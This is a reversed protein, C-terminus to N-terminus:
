GEKERHRVSHTPHFLLRSRHGPAHPFLLTGALCSAQGQRAGARAEKESASCAHQGAFTGNRIAALLICQRRAIAALDPRNFTPFPPLLMRQLRGFARRCRCGLASLSFLSSQRARRFALCLCAGSAFCCKYVICVHKRDVHFTTQITQPFLEVGRRAAFKARLSRSQFAPQLSPSLACCHAFHHNFHLASLPADSPLWLGSPLLFVRHPLLLFPWSPRTEQMRCTVVGRTACASEPRILHTLVAAFTSPHSSDGETAKVRHFLSLLGDVVPPM